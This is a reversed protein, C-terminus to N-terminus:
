DLKTYYFFDNEPFLNPHLIKILDKLILDPRVTGSEMYDNGGGPSLRKNRNFILGTKIPKFDNLRIDTNTIDNISKAQGTNLWFDAEKAKMYVAEINLSYNHYEETNKWLYNGGADKILQAINSKGGPIYWTGKWPMNLLVSPKYRITDAAKKFFSYNKEIKTFKQEALNEKEFFEAFFKIWEAQGLVSTESYENIQVVPIHYQKLKNITPSISGNIDYVTVLDPKLSLILEFDLSNEYGTDKLKGTNIRKILKPNYIYQSGSLAIIKDTENLADVFAIHTTSLCIVRKVPTKIINKNRLTDPVQFNKNLLFYDEKKNGKVDFISLKKLNGKEEISFLRAYKNKNKVFDSSNNTVKVNNCSVGMVLSLVSFAIIIVHIRKIIFPIITRANRHSRQFNYFYVGSFLIITFIILISFTYKRFQYKNNIFSLIM